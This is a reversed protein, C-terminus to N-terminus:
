EFMSNNVLPNYKMNALHDNFNNEDSEMGNTPVIPAPARDDTIHNLPITLKYHWYATVDKNRFKQLYFVAVNIPLNYFM